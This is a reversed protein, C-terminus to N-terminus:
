NSKEKESHSHNRKKNLLIIPQRYFAKKVTHFFFEAPTGIRPLSSLLCEARVGKGDHCVFVVANRVFLPNVLLGRSCSQVGIGDCPGFAVFFAAFDM